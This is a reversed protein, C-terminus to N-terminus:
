LWWNRHHKLFIRCFERADEKYMKEEYEDIARSEKREKKHDEETVRKKRTIHCLSFGHDDPPDFSMELEGWKQDHEDRLKEAYDFKQMRKLLEACVRLQRAYIHANAHYKDEEHAKAMRRIKFELLALLYHQDWDQDKYLIPVYAWLRELFELFVVIARFRNRLFRCFKKM